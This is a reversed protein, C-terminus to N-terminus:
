YNSTQPSPSKKPTLHDALLQTGKDGALNCYYRMARLLGQSELCRAYELFVAEMLPAPLPFHVARLLISLASVSAQSSATRKFHRGTKKNKRILGYELCSETFLAAQDFNRM